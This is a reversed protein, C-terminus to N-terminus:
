RRSHASVNNILNTRKERGRERGNRVRECFFYLLLNQGSFIFFFQHITNVCIKSIFSFFNSGHFDRKLNIILELFFLSWM